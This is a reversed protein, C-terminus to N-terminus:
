DRRMQKSNVSRGDVSSVPVVGLWGHGLVEGWEVDEEGEEHDCLDWHSSVVM